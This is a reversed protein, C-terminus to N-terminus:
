CTDTLERVYVVAVSVSVDDGYRASAVGRAVRISREHEGLNRRAEYSSPRVSLM